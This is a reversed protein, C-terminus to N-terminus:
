KKLVLIAIILGILSLIFMIWPLYKSNIKIFSDAKNEVVMKEIPDGISRMLMSYIMLKIEDVDVQKIVKNLYDPSNDDLLNINISIDKGVMQLKHAISEVDDKLSIIINYKQKVYWRFKNEYDDYLSGIMPFRNRGMVLDFSIEKERNLIELKHPHNNKQFCDMCIGYSICEICHHTVKKIKMCDVCFNDDYNIKPSQSRSLTKDEIEKSEKEKVIINENKDINIVELNDEYRAKNIGNMFLQFNVKAHYIEDAVDLAQQNVSMQQVFSITSNVMNNMQEQLQITTKNKRLKSLVMFVKFAPHKLTFTKEDFLDRNDSIEVKTDNDIIVELVYRLPTYIIIEEIIKNQLNLDSTYFLIFSKLAKSLDSWFISKNIAELWMKLAYIATGKLRLSLLSEITDFSGIPGSDKLRFKLSNFYTHTISNLDIKEDETQRLYLEYYNSNFSLPIATYSQNM